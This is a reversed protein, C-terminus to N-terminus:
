QSSFPICGCFLHIVVVRCRRLHCAPDKKLPDSIYICVSVVELVQLRVRGVPCVEENAVHIPDVQHRRQCSYQLQEYSVPNIKASLRLKSCSDGLTSSCIESSSATM